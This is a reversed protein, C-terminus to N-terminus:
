QKKGHSVYIVSKATYVRFNPILKAGYVIIFWKGSINYAKADSM